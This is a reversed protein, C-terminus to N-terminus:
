PSTFLTAHWTTFEDAFGPQELDSPYIEFYRTGFTNYAYGIAVEPGSVSASRDNNVPVPSLCPDTFAPDLFPNIWSQIMQFMSFTRNKTTDIAFAFLATPNNCALDEQFFGLKPTAGANFEAMFTDLLFQDLPPSKTADSMTFFPLFSFKNPFRDVMAHISALAANTFKTREYSGVAVLSGANDRVGGLGVIESRVHALVPHDRLAIMSGSKSDLVLHASLAQCFADWRALATADWPVATLVPGGATAAVYASVGPQNLIYAPVATAFIDLTLKKGSSQLAAVTVDINTFDYVGQATEIEDWGLRTVWGDVFSKQLVSATPTVTTGVAYIGTPRAFTASPLAVSTASPSTGGGGGGGGCAALSLAVLLGSLINRVPM